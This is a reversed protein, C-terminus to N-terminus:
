PRSFLSSRLGKTGPPKKDCNPSPPDTMLVQSFPRTQKLQIPINPFSSCSINLNYSNSNGNDNNSNNNNIM